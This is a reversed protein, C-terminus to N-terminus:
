SAGRVDFKGDQNLQSIFSFLSDPISVIFDLLNSPKDSATLIELLSFYFLSKM